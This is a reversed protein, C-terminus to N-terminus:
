WVVRRCRVCRSMVGTWGHAGLVSAVQQAVECPREVVDHWGYRLTVLSRLAFDNDRRFDRFRGEDAHGLRGDLEVLLAFDDYGVDSRHRLGARYRNRRGRPLRHAREVDRLYHLELPSEVGDAVDGLLEELLRRHRHQARQGLAELLTSASVLRLQVARTVLAVVDGGRAAGTLDLVTDAGTLRPPSGVSRPSRVGARERRFNWPGSITCREGFPQLVDITAPAEAILGWLHASAAPGLRARDGAALVGAWAWAPWPPRAPHLYLLGRGLRQWQRQACLRKIVAPSVGHATAQELTLAGDQCAALRLVPEPIRTRPHM